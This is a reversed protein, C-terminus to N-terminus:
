NPADKIEFVLNDPSLKSNLYKITSEENEVWHINGKDKYISDLQSGVPNALVAKYFNMNLEAISYSSYIFGIIVPLM